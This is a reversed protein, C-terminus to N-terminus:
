SPEAALLPDCLPGRSPRRGLAGETHDSPRWGLGRTWVAPNAGGQTEGQHIRRVRSRCWLDLCWARTCKSPRGATSGRRSGEGRICRNMENKTNRKEKRRKAFTSGSREEKGYQITAFNPLFISECKLNMRGELEISRGDQSM